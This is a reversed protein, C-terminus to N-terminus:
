IPTDVAHTDTDLTRTDSTDTDLTRNDLIHPAQTHTDTFLLNTDLIGVTAVTDSTAEKVAWTTTNTCIVPRTNM